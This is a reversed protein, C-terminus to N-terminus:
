IGLTRLCLDTAEKDFLPNRKSVSDSLKVTEVWGNGYDLATMKIVINLPKVGVDNTLWTGIGYRDTMRDEPDVSQCTKHINEITSLDKLNDSFMVTKLRPQIRLRRYCAITKLLFELPDGSDQRVGDWLKAHKVTFAHKYFIETTFTDPLATGLWGDYIKVWAELAEYNARLYGFMAAHAEIWEHALTGLWLLDYLMAFFGNSTGLMHGRGHQKLDGIVEHQNENSYRRRTGFESYYINLNALGEAKEINKLHRTSEFWPQWEAGKQGTMEFYLESITAMLPVEWLVTKYWPGQVFLTLRPGDQGILLEEQPNYQYGSLFDLYQDDLYYCSRRMFDKENKSLRIARFSDLIEMLRKKFGDPFERDDRNM